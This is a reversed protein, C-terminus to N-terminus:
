TTRPSLFKTIISIVFDEVSLNKADAYIKVENYMEPTLTIAEM